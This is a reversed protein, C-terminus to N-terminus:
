QHLLLSELEFEKGMMALVFSLFGSQFFGELAVEFFISEKLNLSPLLCRHRKEQSPVGSQVLLSLVCYAFFTRKKASQTEELSWFGM